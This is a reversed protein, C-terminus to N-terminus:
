ANLNSPVAADNVSVDDVIGVGASDGEFDVVCAVGCAVGLAIDVEGADIVLDLAILMKTTLVGFISPFAKPV